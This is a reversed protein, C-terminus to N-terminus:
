FKEPFCKFLKISRFIAFLLNGDKFDLEFKKTIYKINESLKKRVIKLKQATIELNLGNLLYANLIKIYETKNRKDYDRIEFFIPHIMKSMDIEQIHSNLFLEIRFIDFSFIHKDDGLSLGYNLANIAEKFHINLDMLDNFCGSVGAFINYKSFFDNLERMENEMNLIDYDASFLIVVNNLYTFYQFEKKLRKFLDTFYVFHTKTNEYQIVDVVAVYIKEKFMQNLQNIQKRYSDKSIKGEILEVLLSEDLMDLGMSKTGCGKVELTLRDCLIKVLEYDEDIFPKNYAVICVSGFQLDNKDFVVGNIRDRLGDAQMLVVPASAYADIFKATKFFDVTEHCFRGTGVLETWLPDDDARGKSNALLKYSIDIFIIPNGIIEDATDLIYQINGDAELLEKLKKKRDEIM